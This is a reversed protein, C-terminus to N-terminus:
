RLRKWAMGDAPRVIAGATLPTTKLGGAQRSSVDSGTLVHKQGVIAVLAELFEESLGVTM